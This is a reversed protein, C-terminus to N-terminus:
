NFERLFKGKNTASLVAVPGITAPKMAQGTPGGIIFDVEPLSQTLSRLGSEDCYALVIRVDAPTEAFAELVAAVPERASWADNKVLKPDVVGTM